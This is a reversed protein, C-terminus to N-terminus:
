VGFEADLDAWEVDSYISVTEDGNAFTYHYVSSDVDLFKHVTSDLSSVDVIEANEIYYDSNIINVDEISAAFFAQGSNAVIDLDLTLSDSQSSGIVAEVGQLRSTDTIAFDVSHVSTEATVVDFGEGGNVFDNGNDFIVDDGKGADVVDLGQGGILFDDGEGGILLDDKQYTKVENVFYDSADIDVGFGSKDFTGKAASLQIEDFSANNTDTPDIIFSGCCKGDSEHLVKINDAQPDIGYTALTAPDAEGVTFYGTAVEVGDDYVTWVGVENTGDFAEDAFLRDVAVEAAVTDSNVNICLVESEGEKDGTGGSDLFSFGIQQPVGSEPNGDVGYVGDQNAAKDISGDPNVAIAQSLNEESPATMTADQHDGFIIDNGSGGFLVDQGLGGDLWDDGAGGDLWDNGEVKGDLDSQNIVKIEEVFYDSSDLKNGEKDFVGEAASLIIQDFPQGNTDQQTIEFTGSKNDGGDLVKINNILEADYTDLSQGDIEAATFYGSAVVIGDNLVTWVGMENTGNSAEDAFLRDVRVQAAAADESLNYVLQESEGERTNPDYSYGLQDPNGSEGNGEVGIKGNQETVNGSNGNPDVARADTLDISPAHYFDYVDDGILVDNGHGGILVDDDQGGHLFDSNDHSEAELQVTQVEGVMFDSSDLYGYGNKDYHGVAASFQIEDFTVFGVDEPTIQFEGNHKGNGNDLVKLNDTNPDLGYAELTAQDWEGATVYGQALVVGERLVTWVAVEDIDRVKSGDSKGEDKFLRSLEVKAGYSHEDVAISLVESAGNRDGQEGEDEFSYGIQGGRGSEDNGLVGFTGNKEFLQAESGDPSYVKAKTLDATVANSFDLEYEGSTDNYHYGSFQDGILVDDGSEGIVSDNGNGAIVIDDGAGTIVLDDGGGSAVRDDGAQTPITDPGDTGGVTMDTDDIIPTVDEAIDVMDVRSAHTNSENKNLTM